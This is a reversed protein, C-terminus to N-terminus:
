LWVMLVIITNESDSLSLSPPPLNEVICLLRFLIKATRINNNNQFVCVLRFLFITKFKFFLVTKYFYCQLLPHKDQRQYHFTVSNILNIETKIFLFVSIQRYKYISFCMSFYLYIYLYIYVATCLSMSLRLAVSISIDPLKNKFLFYVVCVCVCVNGREREAQIMPRIYILIRHPNGIYRLQYRPASLRGLDHSQVTTKGAETSNKM